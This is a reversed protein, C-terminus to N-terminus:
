CQKYFSIIASVITNEDEETLEIGVPISLCQQAALEANPFDGARYGLDHLAPQLHLPVPYYIISPIGKDTLYAQLADRYETRLTYQHYTHSLDFVQPLSLDGIGTLADTYRKARKRRTANWDDVHSLKRLLIAAQIEDLRSNEGICINTYKKESMSGHNALLRIRKAYEESNTVVMGGDGYCGLNKTPFFSFCGIDGFSGATIESEKAGFSQAADEILFLGKRKALKACEHIHALSGFLDVPILARTTPTIRKECQLPDICYTNLDIDAFVPHAGVSVISEVTAFFSFPTTIVEDGPGIRLTKLAIRLADTGSNVGVAYRMSCYQSIKSELEPTVEGKVYAGSRLVGIVAEELTDRLLLHQKELDLFRM